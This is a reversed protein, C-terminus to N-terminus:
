FHYNMILSVHNMNVKNIVANLNGNTEGQQFKAVWLLQMEMGKLFGTFHYRVDVNTQWYSPMVYKNLRANTIAPLDFYGVSFLTKWHSAKPQYGLRAVSAWVDGFGENRERPMFTYFPDRGWERPFLYRGSDSIRTFSIDSLWNTERIGFRTSYIESHSGKDVYSKSPDPNGGYALADQRTFQAGIILKKTKTIPFSVDVQVFATNLVNEIYYNWVQFQTHSLSTNKWNIVGVGKSEIHEAYDSASGNTARGQPYIGISEGTDYWETTSRPSIAYLWGFQIVNKNGLQQEHWLGEVGTPRMRGDQLNIFPTNLLQRGFTTSSHSTTYNLLLEELRDIDSKNNPREIDFLGLEYRNEQNTLADREMFDSSWVNFIFFGSVIFNFGHFSQTQFRIGGGAANSFYDSLENENQTGMFLYRFHGSVIGGRFTQILATSDQSKMSEGRWLDPKENVDQHQAIVFLPFFLYLVLLAIRFRQM